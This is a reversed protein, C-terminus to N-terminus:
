SRITQQDLTVPLEFMFNQFMARHKQRNECHERSRIMLCFSGTWEWYRQTQIPTERDIVM